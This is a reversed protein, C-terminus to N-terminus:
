NGGLAIREEIAVSPKLTQIPPQPHSPLAPVCNLGFCYVPPFATSLHSRHYVLILSTGNEQSCTFEPSLGTGLASLSLLSPNNRQTLGARHEERNQLYLYPPCSPVSLSSQRMRPRQGQQFHGILHKLNKPKNQTNKLSFFIFFSLSLFWCDQTSFM